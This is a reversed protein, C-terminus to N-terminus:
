PLEKLQVVAGAGAREARSLALRAVALDQVAHGVSKFLTIQNSGTRGPAGAAVEGIEVMAAHAPLLGEQMPMILDGAEALAAERSDVFIAARAVLDGPVERMQPTYAGIATLHTGPSVESGPFVPIASTTATIIVDAGRVALAPDAATVVTAGEVWPQEQAWGAFAEAREPERDVVRVQMIRRVACVAELQTRGQAGAGFLAVIAADRRALLDAALGGAAGTRLATLYTGELLAAPEGTEVDLLLVTAFITPLRRQPNRPFVTVLKAGLGGAAPLYAPMALLAGGHEVVPVHSRLPVTARGASLEVFAQRVAGIADVMPVLERLDRASIVRMTM